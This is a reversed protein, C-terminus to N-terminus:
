ILCIIMLFILLVNKKSCLLTIFSGKHHLLTGGVQTLQLM